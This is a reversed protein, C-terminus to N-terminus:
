AGGNRPSAEPLVPRVDLVKNWIETEGEVPWGHNALWVEAGTSAADKLAAQIREFDPHDRTLYCLAGFGWCGVALRLEDEEDARIFRVTTRYTHNLDLVQGTAGVAVGVPERASLSNQACRLLLDRDPHAEPIVAVRGDSFVVETGNEAARVDAVLCIASFARTTTPMALEELRGAM